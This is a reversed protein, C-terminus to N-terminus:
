SQKHTSQRAANARERSGAKRRGFRLLRLGLVVLENLILRAAGGFHLGCALNRARNKERRAGHDPECAAPGDGGQAPRRSKLATANLHTRASWRETAGAAIGVAM